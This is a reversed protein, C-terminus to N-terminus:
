RRHDEKPTFGKIVVSPQSKSLDAPWLGLPLRYESCSEADQGSRELGERFIKFIELKKLGSCYYLLYSMQRTLPWGLILGWSRMHRGLVVLLPIGSCLALFGLCPLNSRFFSHSFNMTELPTQFLLWKTQLHWSCLPSSMGLISDRPKMAPGPCQDKLTEREGRREAEAFSSSRLAHCLGTELGTLKQSIPKWHNVGM